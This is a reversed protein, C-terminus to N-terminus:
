AYPNEILVEACPNTFVEREMIVYIKDVHILHWGDEAWHNLVAELDIVAPPTFYLVKYESKM